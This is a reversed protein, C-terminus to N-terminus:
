IEQIKTTKPKAFSGSEIITNELSYQFKQLIAVAWFQSFELYNYTQQFQLIGHIM